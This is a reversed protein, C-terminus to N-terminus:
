IVIYLVTLNIAGIIFAAIWSAKFARKSNDHPAINEIVGQLVATAVCVAVGVAMMLITGDAFFAYIIGYLTVKEYWSGIESYAADKRSFADAISSMDKQYMTHPMLYEFGTRRLRSCAIFIFGAFLGIMPLFAVPGSSTLEMADFSGCFVYFGIATMMMMPAAAVMEMVLRDAGIKSYYTGYANAALVLFIVGLGLCAITMLLDIGAVFLSGSVAYFFLSVKIYYSQIGGKEGSSKNLLAIVDSIPRTIDRGERGQVRASAKETIGTLIGGALPAFVLFALVSIIIRVM